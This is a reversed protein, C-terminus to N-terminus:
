ENEGELVKINVINQYTSFLPIRYGRTAIIINCQGEHRKLEAGFSSSDTKGIFLMDENELILTEGDDTKVEYLTRDNDQFVTLEVVNYERYNWYPISVFMVIVGLVFLIAVIVIITTLIGSRRKLKESLIYSEDRM